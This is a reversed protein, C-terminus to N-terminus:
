GRCVVVIWWFTNTAYLADPADKGAGPLARPVGVARRHGPGPQGEGRAGDPHRHRRGRVATHRHVQRHQGSPVAARRRVSGHVPAVDQRPHQGTLHLLHAKRTHIHTHTHPRLSAGHRRSDPPRHSWKYQADWWYIGECLDCQVATSPRVLVFARHRQQLIRAVATTYGDGRLSVECVSTPPHAAFAITKSATVLLAHEANMRAM